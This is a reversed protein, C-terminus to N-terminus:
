IDNYRSCQLKYSAKKKRKDTSLGHSKLCHFRIVHSVAQLMARRIELCCSVHMFIININPFFIAFVLPEHQVVQKCLREFFFFYLRYVYFSRSCFCGRSRRFYDFQVTLLEVFPPHLVQLCITLLFFPTAVRREIHM